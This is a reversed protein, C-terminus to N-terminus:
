LRLSVLTCGAPIYNAGETYLYFSVEGHMSGILTILFLVVACLFTWSVVSTFFVYRSGYTCYFLLLLDEDMFLVNALVGSVVSWRM